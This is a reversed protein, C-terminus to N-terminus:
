SRGAWARLARATCILLRFGYSAKNSCTKGWFIDNFSSMHRIQIGVSTATNDFIRAAGFVKKM